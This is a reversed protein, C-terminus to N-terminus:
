FLCNTHCANAFWWCHSFAKNEMPALGLGALFAATLRGIQPLDPLPGADVSTVSMSYPFCQTPSAASSRRVKKRAREQRFLPSDLDFVALSKPCMFESSLAARVFQTEVAGCDLAVMSFGDSSQFASSALFVQVQQHVAGGLLAQQTQPLSLRWLDGLLEWASRQVQASASHRTQKPNGETTDGVSM